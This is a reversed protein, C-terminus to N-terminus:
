IKGGIPVIIQECDFLYLCFIENEKQIWFELHKNNIDTEISKIKINEGISLLCELVIDGFTENKNEEKLLSTFLTFYGLDKGFLLYAKSINNKIFNNCKEILEANSVCEKQNLILQKNIEYLNTEIEM